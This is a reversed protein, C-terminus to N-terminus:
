LVSAVSECFYQMKTESMGAVNIRGSGVIYIGYKAKLEDVQMPTLGSYSFMGKQRLLFEFDHGKGTTKMTEVFQERLRTIRVRMAELEEKWQATLAEDSLITAVISGGHRPPNSYNTRVARKLQSRAATADAASAAVLSIAGVRESYLGFNKSFSTCVLAEDTHALVTRLGTADAEIGDGFGQYAFDILPLLQKEQVVAAIQKWDEPTPDIGTPNHCCGHLLVVDGPSASERLTQLMGDLDLSTRDDALYRYTDSPVGAATFIAPHNAWTPNPMWIKVQPLQTRMFDAAVRLGGTGGPTQVVAVRDQPVTDGFVLNRVDAAYDPSGDIPLYGKTAETELIKKEAAKVSQLIPTKGSEDKYVGVSLNLKDPNSDANFAETLGLIADPPATEINSFRHSM